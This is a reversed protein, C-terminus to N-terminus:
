NSKRDEEDIFHKLFERFTSIKEMDDKKIEGSNEYHEIVSFLDKMKSHLKDKLTVKSHPNKLEEIEETLNKVKM